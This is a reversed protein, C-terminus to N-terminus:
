ALLNVGRFSGYLPKADEAEPRGRRAAQRTFHDPLLKRYDGLQRNRDGVNDSEPWQIPVKRPMTM